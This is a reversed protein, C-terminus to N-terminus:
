ATRQLGFRGTAIDQHTRSGNFIADRWDASPLPAPEAKRAALPGFAKLFTAASASGTASGVAKELPDSFLSLSEELTDDLDSLDAPHPFASALIDHSAQATAALAASLSTGISSESFLFGAGPGLISLVADHVALLRISEVKGATARDFRLRELYRTSIHDWAIFMSDLSPSNVDFALVAVLRSFQPTPLHM